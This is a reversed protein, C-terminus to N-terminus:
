TLLDSLDMNQSIKPGVHGLKSQKKDFDPWNPYPLFGSFEVINVINSTFVRVFILFKM